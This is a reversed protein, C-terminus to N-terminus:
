SKERIAYWGQQDLGFRRGFSGFNHGSVYNQNKTGQRKKQTALEQVHPRIGQDINPEVELSQM